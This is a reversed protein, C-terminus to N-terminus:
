NGDKLITLNLKLITHINQYGMELTKLNHGKTCKIITGDEMTIKFMEQKGKNVWHTVPKLNGRGTRVLLTTDENIYVGPKRPVKTGIKFGGNNSIINTNYNVCDRPINQLNPERSSLRGTVTGHLLFSGHIKDDESLKELMGLIYTSYLKTMGRYQLLAEVFGSKDKRKLELLVEEDTSPNETERKNKDTTYKIIKFGFGADSTFFLEAMQAPSSFNIPEVWKLEKNTTFDKAIYRSIKEERANIQKRKRAKVKDDDSDNIEQELKEIEEEISKIGNRIRDAHLAQQFRKVKKNNRLTNDTNEIKDKYTDVLNELYKRDVVMGNFESEALVKTAMMLMNRFLPYFKHEILKIEFFLMLRFTLDADLACYKSLGVLPKQDWPLKSGEYDEEYDAFEPLYKRVMSKLDNPREENLLYKALMGDFLRGEMKIDYKLFWKMEFKLNWAIKIIEPNSIIEKGLKKLLKLWVKDKKFPSDFHALPIVWASGPQFSVSIITPYGLSSQFPHGSTEFDISAYGTQKCYKILRDVQKEKTIIKYKSPM